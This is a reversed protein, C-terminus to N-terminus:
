RAGTSIWRGHLKALLSNHQVQCYTRASKMLVNCKCSTRACLQHGLLTWNADMQRGNPTLKAGLLGSTPGPLAWSAGLPAWSAGLASGSSSCLRRLPGLNLSLPAWSAGLQTWFAGLLALHGALFCDLLTQLACFAIKSFTCFTGYQRAFNSTRSAGPLCKSALNSSLIADM